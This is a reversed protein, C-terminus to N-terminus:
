QSLAWVTGWFAAFFVIGAMSTAIAPRSFRRQELRRSFSVALGAVGLALGIPPAWFLIMSAIGLTLGLTETPKKM